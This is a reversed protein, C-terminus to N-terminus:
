MIQVGASTYAISRDSVCRQAMAPERSVARRTARMLRSAVVIIRDAHQEHAKESIHFVVNAVQFCHNRRCQQKVSEGLIQQQGTLARAGASTVASASERTKLRMRASDLRCAAARSVTASRLTSALRWKVGGSACRFGGNKKCYTATFLM